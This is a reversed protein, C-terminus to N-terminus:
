KFDKTKSVFNLSMSLSPMVKEMKFIMHIYFRENREYKKCVKRLDKHVIDQVVDWWLYADKEEM